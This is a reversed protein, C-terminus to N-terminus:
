HLPYEPEFQVLGWGVIEETIRLKPSEESVEFMKFIRSLGGTERTCFIITCKRHPPEEPPTEHVNGNAITFVDDHGGLDEEVAEKNDPGHREHEQREFEANAVTDFKADDILSRRRWSGGHQWVCHCLLVIFAWPMKVRPFM